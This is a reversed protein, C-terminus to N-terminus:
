GGHAPECKPAKTVRTGDKLVYKSIPFSDLPIHQDRLLGCTKCRHRHLRYGGSIFSWLHKAM